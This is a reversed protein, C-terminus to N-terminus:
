LVTGLSVLYEVEDLHGYQPKEPVEPYELPPKTSIEGLRSLDVEVGNIIATGKTNKDSINM